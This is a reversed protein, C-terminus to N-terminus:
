GRDVGKGTQLQAFLCVRCIVAGIVKDGETSRLYGVFELLETSPRDRFGIVATM